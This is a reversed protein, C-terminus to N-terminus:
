KEVLSCHQQCFMLKTFCEAITVTISKRLVCTHFVATFWSLSRYNCASAKPTAHWNQAIVRIHIEGLTRVSKLFQKLLPLM